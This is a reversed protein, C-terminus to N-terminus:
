RARSMRPYAAQPPYLPPIRVLVGPSAGGPATGPNQPGLTVVPGRGNPNFSRPDLPLRQRPIPKLPTKPMLGTAPPRKVPKPKPLHHQKRRVPTEHHVTIWGIPMAPASAPATKLPTAIFTHMLLFLAFAVAGGAAPAMLHRRDQEIWRM